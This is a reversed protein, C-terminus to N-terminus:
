NLARAEPDLEALLDSLTPVHGAVGKMREAVSQQSCVLHWEQSRAPTMFFQASGRGEQLERDLLLPM